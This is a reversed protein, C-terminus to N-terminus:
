KDHMQKVVFVFFPRIGDYNRTKKRYSVLILLKINKAKNEKQM